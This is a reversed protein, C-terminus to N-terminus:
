RPFAGAFHPTFKRAVDLKSFRQDHEDAGRFRSGSRKAVARGPSRGDNARWYFCRPKRQRQDSTFSSLVVILQFPFSTVCAKPCNEEWSARGRAVVGVRFRDLRRAMPPACISLNKQRIRMFSITRERHRYNTVGEARLIRWWHVAAHVVPDREAPVADAKRVPFGM